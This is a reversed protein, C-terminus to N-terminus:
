GSIKSYIIRLRMRKEGTAGGGTVVVRGGSVPLNLLVQLPLNKNGIVGQPSVPIPFTVFPAHLRLTYNRDGRTVIGQVYRTLNLVYRNDRLVGGFTTIDYGPSSATPLFDFPITLVSDGTPTLADLFLASPPTFINEEATPIKEVILEARHVAMNELTDLQPIKITAYSGPATQIYIKEDNDTGNSVATEYGNMPTRAILNAQPGRSYTFRPAITDVKTTNQIRCFFTLRTGSELLNFYALARKKASAESVSIHLGKFVARFNTDNQYVVNTDYGVFRRGFSTDLRIRLERATKVTDKGIKYFVTDNLTTFNVNANGLVVPSVPFPTNTIFYSNDQFPANPEIERVEFTQQSTSDGYLRTYALSLVISDITVAEPRVFPHVRFTGPTFTSYISAETKGFEPDDAIIGVAHDLDAFMRSTDAFLKNDSYVDLIKEFTNINDVGPILDSGLDTNEIKTCAAAFLSLVVVALWGFRWKLLLM